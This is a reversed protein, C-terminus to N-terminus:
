RIIGHNPRHMTAYISTGEHPSAAGASPIPGSLMYLVSWRVMTFPVHDHIRVHKHEEIM